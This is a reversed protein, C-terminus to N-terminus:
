RIAAYVARLRAANAPHTYSGQAGPDPLRTIIGAGRLPDFGAQGAIQAGLSDAELEFRKLQQYIPSPGMQDDWMALRTQMRNLRSLHGAIHHAAEHAVVLALEDANQTEALM